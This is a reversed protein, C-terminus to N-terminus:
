NLIIEGESDMKFTTIQEDKLSRGTNTFINFEYMDGQSIIEIKSVGRLSGIANHKKMYEDSYMMQARARRLISSLLFIEKLQPISSYNYVEVDSNLQDFKRQDININQKEWQHIFDIIKSAGDKESLSLDGDQHIDKKTELSPINRQKRYEEVSLGAMKADLEEAYNTNWEIEELQNKEERKLRPNIPGSNRSSEM